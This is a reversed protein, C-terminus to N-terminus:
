TQKTPEFVGKLFKPVTRNEIKSDFMALSRGTGAKAGALLEVESQTSRRDDSTSDSHLDSAGALAQPRFATRGSLGGSLNLPCPWTVDSVDIISSNQKNNTIFISLSKKGSRLVM